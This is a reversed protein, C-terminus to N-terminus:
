IESALSRSNTGSAIADKVVKPAIKGIALPTSFRAIDQFVLNIMSPLGRDRPTLHSSKLQINVWDICNIRDSSQAFWRLEFTMM